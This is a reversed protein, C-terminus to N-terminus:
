FFPCILNTPKPIQSCPLQVYVFCASGLDALFQLRPETATSSQSQTGHCVFWGCYFLFCLTWFSFWGYIWRRIRFYSWHTMKSHIQILLTNLSIRNSNVNSHKHGVRHWYIHVGSANLHQEPKLWWDSSNSEGTIIHSHRQIVFTVIPWVILEQKLRCFMLNVGRPENSHIWHSLSFILVLICRLCFFFLLTQVDKALLTPWTQALIM